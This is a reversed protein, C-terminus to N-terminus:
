TSVFTVVAKARRTRLKQCFVRASRWLSESDLYCSRRRELHELMASPGTEGCIVEKPLM